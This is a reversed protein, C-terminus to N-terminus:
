LILWLAGGIVFLAILLTLIAAGAKDTTTVQAKYLDGPGVPSTTGASPNGKSTGGNGETVPGTVETILNSQIVELASMQQGVGVQGDFNAGKWWKAGCSTGNPGGTCVAAAANATAELIPKLQPYTFPARVITAAIWRALYAKFSRQDVDCTDSGDPNVAECAQEKMIKQDTLFIGLNGIIGNVRDAWVQSGNTQRM